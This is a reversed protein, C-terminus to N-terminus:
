RGPTEQNRGEAEVTAAAALRGVPAAMTMGPAVRTLGATQLATSIAAQGRAGEAWVATGLSTLGRATNAVSSRGVREKGVLRGM